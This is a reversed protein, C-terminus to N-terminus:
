SIFAIRVPAADATQIRRRYKIVANYGFIGRGIATTYETVFGGGRDKGLTCYPPIIGRHVPAAYIRLIGHGMHGSTDDFVICRIVLPSPYVPGAIKM